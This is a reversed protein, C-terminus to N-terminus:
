PLPRGAPSRPLGTASAAATHPRYARVGWTAGEDNSLLLAAVPTGLVSLRRFLRRTLYTQYFMSVIIVGSPALFDRYRAITAIPDQLYYLCENWVILDFPQDPTFTRADAEVFRTRADARPQAKALTAPFIDIGTYDGYSSLHEQLVGEGCGVDLIRGHPAFHQCWRSERQLARARPAACAGLREGCARATKVCLLALAIRAPVPM